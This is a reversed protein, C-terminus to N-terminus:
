DGGEMGLALYVQALLKVYYGFRNEKASRRLISLAAEGASYKGDAEMAEAIRQGVSYVLIVEKGTLLAPQGPQQSSAQAQGTTMTGLLNSLADGLSIEEERIIEGTLLNRTISKFPEGNFDKLPDNLGVIELTLGM